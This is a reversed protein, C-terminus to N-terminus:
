GCNEHDSHSVARPAPSSLDLIRIPPTRPGTNGARPRSNSEAGADDGRSTRIPGDIRPERSDLVDVTRLRDFSDRALNM